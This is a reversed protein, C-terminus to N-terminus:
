STSMKKWVNQTLCKRAFMQQCAKATRCKRLSFQQCVNSSLCKSAYIQRCVNATLGKRYSMKKCVFKSASKLLTFVSERHRGTQSFLWFLATHLPCHACQVATCVAYRHIFQATHLTGSVNKLTCDAHVSQLTCHEPYVKRHAICTYVNIHTTHLTYKATHLTCKATHLLSVATHLLVATYTQALLPLRGCVSLWM